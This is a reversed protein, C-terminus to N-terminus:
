NLRFKRISGALGILGGAMLALSSPEPVIGIYEQPGNSNNIEDSPTFIRLAGLTEARDAGSTTAYWTDAQTVWTQAGTSAFGSLFQANETPDLSAPAGAYASYFLGWIAFNTPGATSSLPNSEWKELLWAAETYAKVSDFGAVNGFKALNLTAATNVTGPWSEGIHVRNFYSDCAVLYNTITTGNNDSIYYPVVMVGGASNSGTGTITITDGFAVVSCAVLFLLALSVRKVNM